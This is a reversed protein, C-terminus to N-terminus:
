GVLWNITSLDHNSLYENTKSFHSCGFFGRHASLPSPHVSSLVCHKARDIVAGKKHAYAGWLIFVLHERELNLTSVIKDTFQEWGKGQHSAANGSEVTLVSNLLLVGQDAWISLNGTTAPLIDLDNQLEKYINRLSPPLKIGEPVSFSLGHAQGPGHYPDQGLIIVKVKDFSVADLAAFVNEEAPFVEKKKKKEDSLFLKLAAMYESEFEAGLRGRWSEELQVNEFM